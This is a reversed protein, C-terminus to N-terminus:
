AEIKLIMADIWNSDLVAEEYCTPEISENLATAFCFSDPNLNAYNVVREVGCKVNGKVIFDNLSSPLKTQRSSRRLNNVSLEKTDSNIELDDFDNIYYTENQVNGKPHTNNTEEMFTADSDDNGQNNDPSLESGNDNSSVRGEDNPRKLYLHEPTTQSDLNLYGKLVDLVPDAPHGFRQHWLTQSVFCTSISCNSVTKCANNENFDVFLKNDRSLKHVYLLSITYEPVVLVDYLTINDNLKLDGIKTILAQTGNSHGVTLGLNSIDVVNILFKASVIMHQNAGRSNCNSGKNYNNNNNAKKKDVFKAAFVTAGPKNAGNSTINRHSEEGSIIAFADKVLILPERILINIRIALYNDDLGMLFRMLKILEYRIEFNEAANCTCAPLSVMADFQKHYFAVDSPKRRLATPVTIGYRHSMWFCWFLEVIIESLEFMNEKWMIQGVKVLDEMVKLMSGGICPLEPKKFRGSCICEERDEKSYNILRFKSIKSDAKGEQINQSREEGRKKAMIFENSQVDTTGIPAFGPPYKITNNSNTGGNINDQKKNLLDYINLPDESHIGANGDDMDYVQSQEKKFITESVEEVNSDGVTDEYDQKDANKIDLGDDRIGGESDIDEEEDEVFDPIWGSVVKAHVWFVIGKSMLKFSELINEVLKTKICIRKSHFCTEDQDDVQLLNGWKSAIRNFTTKTWVKLPVGEIDLWTVKEDNYFPKLSTISFVM